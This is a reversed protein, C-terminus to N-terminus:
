YGRERNANAKRALASTLDLDWREALGTAAIVLDAIENALERELLEIHDAHHISYAAELNERASFVEAAEELVKVAQARGAVSNNTTVVTLTVM